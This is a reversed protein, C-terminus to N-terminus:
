GRERVANLWEPSNWVVPTGGVDAFRLQPDNSQLLCMLRHGVLIARRAQDAVIDLLAQATGPDAAAFTDFGRMVLVLGTADPRCGYEHCAVDSLCDNLASVNRGFHNPFDLRTAVDDYMNADIEWTHSDFEIVDYGHARLWAVTSELLTLGHFMTVFSNQVLLYDVARSTEADVNWSAVSVGYQGESMKPTRDPQDVRLASLRCVRLPRTRHRSGWEAAATSPTYEHTESYMGSLSESSSDVEMNAGHSAASRPEYAM